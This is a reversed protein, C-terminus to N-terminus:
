TLYKEIAKLGRWLHEEEHPELTLIPKLNRRALLDFFGEFDFEGEGIPLHEDREHHNDHLHVESLFGGLSDVWDRLSVKSFVNHHGTDFCFRFASSDIERLLLLLSDPNEEFVNEIALALGLAQAKRVLPRWTQLSSELWLGMNGDFKWKEYGPHFVINKPRFFDALAIVKSFRDSTVEKIRRDAGGPSLDMFPSHFTVELGHDRLTRALRKAEEEDCTDLDDGSFYIEPHIRNALAFDIRKLLTAYPVNIQVAAMSQEINGRIL